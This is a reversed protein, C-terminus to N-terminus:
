PSIGKPKVAGLDSTESQPDLESLATSELECGLAVAAHLHSNVVGLVALRLHTADSQRIGSAEGWLREVEVVRCAATELVVVLAVAASFRYDLDSRTRILADRIHRFGTRELCRGLAELKLLLVLSHTLKPDTCARMKM